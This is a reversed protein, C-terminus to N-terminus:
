RYMRGRVQVRATARSAARWTMNYILIIVVVVIIIIIIVVVIIVVIIIIIIVIRIVYNGCEVREASETFYANGKRDRM